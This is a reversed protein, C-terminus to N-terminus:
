KTFNPFCTQDTAVMDPKGRILLPRKRGNWLKTLPPPNPPSSGLVKSAYMSTRPLKSNQLYGPPTRIHEIIADPPLFTGLLAEAHRFRLWSVLRAPNLAIVFMWTSQNDPSVHPLSGRHKRTPIPSQSNQNHSRVVFHNRAWQGQKRM